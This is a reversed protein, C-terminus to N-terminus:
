YTERSFLMDKNECSYSEILVIKFHDIGIENFSRYFKSKNKNDKKSFLKHCSFRKYLPQTTSGIYILDNVDNVIKYIKGNKYDM